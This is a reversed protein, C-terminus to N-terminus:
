PERLERPERPEGSEGSLTSDEEGGGKSYSTAITAITAYRDCLGYRNHGGIM